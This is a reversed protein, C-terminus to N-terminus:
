VAVEALIRQGESSHSYIGDRQRVLQDKKGELNGLLEIQGQRQDRRTKAQIIEIPRADTPIKTQPSLIKIGRKVEQIWEDLFSIKIDLDSTM